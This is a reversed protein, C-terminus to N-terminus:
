CESCRRHTRCRFREFVPFVASAFLFHFSLQHTFIPDNVKEGKLLDAKLGVSETGAEKAGSNAAHMIGPGGGSM